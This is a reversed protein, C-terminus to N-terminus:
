WNVLINADDLFQIRVKPRLYFPSGLFCFHGFFQVEVDNTEHWMFSLTLTIWKWIFFYPYLLGQKRGFLKPFHVIFKYKWFSLTPIFVVIALKYSKNIHFKEANLRMKWYGRKWYFRTKHFKCRKKIELLLLSEM